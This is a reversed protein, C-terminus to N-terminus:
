EKHIQYYRPNQLHLERIKLMLSQSKYERIVINPVGPSATPQPVASCSPLDGIQNGITDSPKKLQSLLEPRM